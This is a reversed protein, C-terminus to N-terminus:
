WTTVFYWKSLDVEFLYNINKYLTINLFIVKIEGSKVIELKAIYLFSIEREREIYIYIYVCVCIHSIDDPSLVVIAEFAIVYAFSNPKDFRM